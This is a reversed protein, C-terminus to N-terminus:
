VRRGIRGGPHNEAFSDLTVGKAEMLAIALLDGFLLQIETSTTPALDYPCFESECPLEFSLDAGQVLTSARNSTIAIISAGKNRLAPLLRLLEESEGSKSLCIVTDQNSIMGLDGHLADIPSLFLAKTGASMMTAAIKQAIFGSKGVGTFFLIGTCRMIQEFIKQCQKEDFHSFYYDLHQKQKALLKQFM